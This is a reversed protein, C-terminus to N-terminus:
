NMSLIRSFTWEIWNWANNQANKSEFVVFKDSFRDNKTSFVVNTTFNKFCHKRKVMISVGDFKWVHTVRMSNTYWQRGKCTWTISVRQLTTRWITDLYSVFVKMKKLFSKKWLFTLKIYFLLKWTNQLTESTYILM